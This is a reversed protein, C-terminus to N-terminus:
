INTIKCAILTSRSKTACHFLNETSWTHTFNDFEVHKPRLTVRFAVPSIKDNKISVCPKLYRMVALNFWSESSTLESNQFIRIVTYQAKLNQPKQQNGLIHLGLLLQTSTLGKQKIIYNIICCIICRNLFHCLEFLLFKSIHITRWRM